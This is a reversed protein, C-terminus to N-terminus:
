FTHHGSSIIDQRDNEDRSLSGIDTLHLNLQRKAKLAKRNWYLYAKKTKRIQDTLTRVYEEAGTTLSAVQFQGLHNYPPITRM